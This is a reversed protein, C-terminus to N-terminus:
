GTSEQLSILPAVYWMGERGVALLWSTQLPKQSKVHLSLRDRPALDWPQPISPSICKMWSIVCAEMRTSSPSRLPCQIDPKTHLGKSVASLSYPRNPPQSNDDTCRIGTLSFKCRCILNQATLLISGVYHNEILDRIHDTIATGDFGVM